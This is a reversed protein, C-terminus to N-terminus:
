ANALSPLPPRCWQLRRAAKRFATAAAEMLPTPAALPITLILARRAGAAVALREAEQVAPMEGSLVFQVDANRNAVWLRGRASADTRIGEVQSEDFGVIAIMGVHKGAAEAM